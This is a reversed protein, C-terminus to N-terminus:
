FKQALITPLLFGLELSLAFRTGNYLLLTDSILFLKLVFAFSLTNIITTHAEKSGSFHAKWARHRSLNLSINSLVNTCDYNHLESDNAQHKRKKKLKWKYLMIRGFWHISAYDVSADLVNLM